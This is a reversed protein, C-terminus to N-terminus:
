DTAAGQGLASRRMVLFEGEDNRVTGHHEFGLGRAVRLSRQNWAAILLRLSEPRWQGLGFDCITAVFRRGLGQEVLDPRLGYGVDLVGAEPQVGPVRAGGGFCCYGVLEDDAAVSWFGLAPVLTSGVDYTSYRGQYRWGAIAEADARTLPQVLM